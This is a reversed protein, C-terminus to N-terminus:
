DQEKGPWQALKLCFLAALAPPPCVIDFNAVLLMQKVEFATTSFGGRSGGEDGKEHNKDDLILIKSASFASWSIL